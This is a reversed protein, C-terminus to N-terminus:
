RAPIGMEKLLSSQDDINAENVETRRNNAKAAIFNPVWEALSSVAALKRVAMIEAREKINLFEILRLTCNQCQRCAEKDTTILVSLLLV